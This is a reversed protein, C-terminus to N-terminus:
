VCPVSILRQRIKDFEDSAMQKRQRLLKLDEYIPFVNGKVTKHSQMVNFSIIKMNGARFDPHFVVFYGKLAECNDMQDLVQWYYQKNEEKLDQPTDCEFYRIYNDYTPPCKVEVVEVEYETNDPSIRIPILADPTSGFRSDKEAILQQVILLDVGKQEAFKKIATAEHFIGWRTIDTDIETRSPKGTLSEGVKRRIYNIASETFGTPNTLYFIESSTFRSLRETYWEDSWIKVTSIKTKKLM